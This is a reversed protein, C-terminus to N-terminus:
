ASQAPQGAVPGVARPRKRQQANRGAYRLHCSAFLRAAGPRGPQPRQRPRLDAGDEIPREEEVSIVTPRHPAAKRMDALEKELEKSGSPRRSPKAAAAQRRIQGQGSEIAQRHNRVALVAGRRRTVYGDTGENSVIVFGQGNAEFQLRGALRLPRRYGADRAHQCPRHARWRCQLHHGAGSDARHLDPTYALRVEYKGAKAIDPM